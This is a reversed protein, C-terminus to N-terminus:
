AVVSNLEKTNLLSLIFDRGLGTFRRDYVIVGSDLVIQKISVYGKDAYKSYMIWTGNQKFQIKKEALINNLKIASKLGMEKAIETSTYLKKSHLLRQNQEQLLKREKDIRELTAKAVILAKAMIEEPTEEGHTSIYGGDKRIAKLIEKVEKKFQKAIPKRSLMLVEYLGNETLMWVEASERIENHSYNEGKLKISYKQKEDEDVAQIMKSVDRHTRRNDKFSYDIWEAVDQAKFLPEDPTGYVVFQKGLLEQEKLVQVQVNAVSMKEVTEM